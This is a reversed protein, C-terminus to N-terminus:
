WTPPPSPECVSWTSRAYPRFSRWLAFGFLLVMSATWCYYAERFPRFDVVYLQWPLRLMAAGIRATSELWCTASGMVGICGCVLACRWRRTLILLVGVAIALNPLWLVALQVRMWTELGDPNNVVYKPLRTLVDCGTYSDPRYVPLFMSSVYFLLIYGVGMLSLIDRDVRQKQIARKEVKDPAPPPVYILM